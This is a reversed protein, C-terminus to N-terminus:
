SNEHTQRLLIASGLGGASAIAALGTGGNKHLDHYLQTALVAGSAGIPHGRALAGGSTNVIAPPINAGRVCAIAQVAFAEMIQASTLDQPTLKARSLVTNIAPIPALGPMAPDAGLTTGGLFAVANLGRSRAYKESVMVVFAAGDAAVAMNAATISGTVKPARACHELSLDRTFTDHTLGAVTAIDLPYRRTRQHPQQDGM